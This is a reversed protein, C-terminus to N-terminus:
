LGFGDDVFGIQEPQRQCGLRLLPEADARDRHGVPGRRSDTLHAAFEDHRTKSRRAHWGTGGAVDGLDRGRLSRGVAFDSSGRRLQPKGGDGAVPRCCQHALFGAANPRAILGFCRQGGRAGCCIYRTLLPTLQPRSHCGHGAM